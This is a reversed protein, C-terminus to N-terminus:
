KSLIACVVVCTCRPTRGNVVISEHVSHYSVYFFIGDPGRVVRNSL